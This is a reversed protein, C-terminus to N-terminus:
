GVLNAVALALYLGENQIETIIVLYGEVVENSM